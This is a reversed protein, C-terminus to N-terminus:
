GHLRKGSMDKRDSGKYRYTTSFKYDCHKCTNSVVYDGNIRTHTREFRTLDHLYPVHGIITKFENCIRAGFHKTRSVGNANQISVRFIRYTDIISCNCSKCTYCDLFQGDRNYDFSYLFYNVKHKNTIHDQVTDFVKCTGSETQKSERSHPITSIIKSWFTLIVVNGGCM